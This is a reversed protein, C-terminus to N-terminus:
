KEVSFGESAASLGGCTWRDGPQAGTASARPPKSGAPSFVRVAQTPKTRARASGQTQPRADASPNSGRSFIAAQPDRVVRSMPMLDTEGTPSVSRCAVKRHFADPCSAPPRRTPLCSLSAPHTNCPNPQPSRSCQKSRQIYSGCATFWAGNLRTLDLADRKSRHSWLRPADSGRM